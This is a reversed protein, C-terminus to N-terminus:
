FKADVLFQCPSLSHPPSLLISHTSPYFALTTLFKVVLSSQAATYNDEHYFLLLSSMSDESIYRSPCVLFSNLYEWLISKTAGSIGRAAFGFVLERLRDLGVLFSHLNKWLFSYNAGSIGRAAFGPVLELLSDLYYFNCIIPIHPPKSLGVLVSFLNKWM